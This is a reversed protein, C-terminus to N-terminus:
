KKHVEPSDPLAFVYIANGTSPRRKQPLLRPMSSWGGLDIVSTPVALYQKGRVAYTIPFGQVSAGLRTQFVVQGTGADHIYLNRDWDGVIALGGATTLAASNMPTETRHRWLIKGNVDIALFEGLAGPSSPHFTRVSTFDGYGGTGEEKSQKNERFTVVNCHLNLPVYFAQKQPQYAMSRWDKFGSASPCYKVESDLRPTTEPAFNLEGTALNLKYLTQYGIDHAAIYRGTKRDIEWLIGLKGMKFISSLGNHDVLISEFVEDQDYSDGPIFQHYWVLKGTEPNIALTSNTYLERAGLDGRQAQSWPKAQSTSWYILNLAPDFSGPMWADSGTRQLLPLDGWTDGGPEGPRAVTSFRWLEEGTQPDHASIFCVDNKYKECGGIGAVIKGKVVIPGSTYGYGLKDHDAVQHDWVVKGTRADLAVIHADHTNLYVKDDYIAMSRMMLLGTTAKPVNRKYEWLLEGTAADLAIAGDIPNQVYMVGNHVIPGPESPGPNLTWVWALQLNRANEANIEKLPSYGWGDLTRRWHIWDAPDPNQLMSDTIRPFQDIQANSAVSLFTLVAITMLFIIRRRKYWGDRKTSARFEALLAFHDSSLLWEEWKSNTTM